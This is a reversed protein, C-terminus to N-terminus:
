RPVGYFYHGKGRPFYRYTGYTWRFREGLPAVMQRLEAEEYIRLTSVVGDWTGMLLAAPTFWTLAAKALRERETFLPGAYLALLGAPAFNLFQAPCREFGEAIFVGPSGRVADELVARALAPPLHHFINILTRGRGRAIEPAVRTADVPSPEFDITGPYQARAREWAEVRPHLDTLVFRPAVRGSRGMAAALIRAPGGAGAGLDLVEDVRAEEIFRAFPEVLGDLMRGWELSRSLAEVITDRAAAPVWDLDNFEFLQLRPLRM